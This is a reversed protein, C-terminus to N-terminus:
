LNQEEAIKENLVSKAEEIACDMADDWGRKYAVRECAALSLAQIIFAAVMVMFAIQYNM